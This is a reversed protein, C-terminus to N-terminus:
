EQEYREDAQIMLYYYLHPVVLFALMALMMVKVTFANSQIMVSLSYMCYVQAGWFAYALYAYAPKLKGMKVLTYFAVYVLGFILVFAGDLFVWLFDNLAIEPRIILHTQELDM